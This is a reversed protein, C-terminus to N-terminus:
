KTKKKAVEPKKVLPKLTIKGTDFNFDPKDYIVGIDEKKIGCREQAENIIQQFKANLQQAYADMQQLEAGIRMVAEKEATSISFTKTAPTKAAM